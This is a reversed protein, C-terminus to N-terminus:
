ERLEAVLAERKADSNVQGCANTMTLGAAIEFRSRLRRNGIM